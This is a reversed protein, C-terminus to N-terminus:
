FVSELDKESRGGGYWGGMEMWFVVARRGNDNEGPVGFVGTIGAKTGDGVWGNLDGLLCLRYGNGVSDQRHRELVEKKVREM